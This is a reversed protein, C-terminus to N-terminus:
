FKFVQHSEFGAEALVGVLAGQVKRKKGGEVVRQIPGAWHGVFGDTGCVLVMVRGADATPSPLGARALASDGRGTAGAWGPPPQTLSYTVRLEPHAASLADLEDRMLIDEERRNVSVFSLRTKRPLSAEAALLARAVQLFPAVGTGGAVLGLRPWRGALETSGHIQRVTPKVKMAAAEGPALGCLFAGVGGGPRPPYAKVLLDFHGVAEDSIPSYSKELASGDTDNLLVKVGAPAAVGLTRMHPPLDFRLVYSDPSVPWKTRLAFRQVGDAACSSAATSSPRVALPVALRRLLARARM